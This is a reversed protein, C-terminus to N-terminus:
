VTFTLSTMLPQIILWLPGLITQKYLSVFDRRVFLMVLDRYRWVERLRLDWWASEPEIILDWEQDKTKINEM